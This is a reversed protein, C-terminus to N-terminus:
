RSEEDAPSDVPVNSISEAPIPVGVIRAFEQDPIHGLFPSYDHPHVRFRPRPNPVAFAPVGVGDPGAVFGAYTSFYTANVHSAGDKLFLYYSMLGARRRVHLSALDEVTLEDYQIAIFAPRSGSLQSAAKRVADLTPASHDDAQRSRVVVVCSRDALVAGSVHCGDGYERRFRDYLEMETTLPQGDELVLRDCAERRISFFSGDVTRLEPQALVRKTASRLERQPSVDKPLRGNLIVVIAEHLPMKLREALEGRVADVFRYFDRRHIKRGADASLSKCEVEGEVGGQRFRLDYRAKGEMDSFEVRYGSDLLRRAVDVELFLSAFGTKSQLADRLRGEIQRQGIPALQGHTHVVMSAFHLAALDKPMLRWDDLTGALHDDILLELLHYDLVIKARFPSEALEDRLHAIRKTWLKRGALEVFRPLVEKFRDISFDVM